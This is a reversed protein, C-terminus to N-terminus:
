RPITNRPKASDIFDIDGTLWGVRVTWKRGNAGVAVKGGTSGGDPFFRIVGTDQSLVEGTYIEMEMTEPLAVEAKDAAKYTKKNVDVLLSQEEGTIMAQGRTYRLAAMLDKGATAIKVNDFRGIIQVALMVALGTIIVIVLMIEILTFGKSRSPYQRKSSM